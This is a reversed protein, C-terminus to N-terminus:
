GFPNPHGWTPLKFVPSKPTYICYLVYTCAIWFLCTVAMTHCQKTRFLLLAFLNCLYGITKAQCGM